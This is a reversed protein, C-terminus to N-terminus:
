RMRPLASKNPKSIVGEETSSEQCVAQEIHNQDEYKHELANILLDLAELVDERVEPDQELRSLREKALTIARKYRKSLSDNITM